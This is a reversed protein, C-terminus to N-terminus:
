ENKDFNDFYQELGSTIREQKVEEDADKAKRLVKEAFDLLTDDLKDRFAMSMGGSTVVAIFFSKFNKIVIKYNDYDISDLEQTEGKFADEVFTKIATLMAAIMDQDVSHNKSFSGMLMGSQKEVIFIEEIKPEILKSIIMNKQPTGTFWAKIRIKWAEWSFALKMQEDVKESLKEIESTIYKKIMRGLIPYLAEVVEDQSERIQKSITETIQPGFLDPFRHRLSEREDDLIPQIKEELRNRSNLQDDLDSLKQAFEEREEWDKELLIERLKDFALGKSM